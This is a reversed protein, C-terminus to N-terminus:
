TRNAKRTPVAPPDFISQDARAPKSKPTKSKHITTRANIKKTKALKFRNSGAQKSTLVQLVDLKGRLEREEVWRVFGNSYEVQLIPAGSQARRDLVRVPGPRRSPSRYIAASDSKAAVNHSSEACNEPGSPINRTSTGSGGAASSVDTTVDADSGSKRAPPITTTVATPASMVPEPPVPQLGTTGPEIDVGADGVGDDGTTGSTSIAAGDAVAAVAATASGPSAADVFRWCGAETACGKYNRATMRVHVIEGDLDLQVRPWIPYNHPVSLVTGRIWQLPAADDASVKFLYMVRDRARPPRYSRCPRLLVAEDTGQLRLEAHRKDYREILHKCCDLHEEPEWSDEEDGYGKWRVLFERRSDNDIRSNSSSDRERGTTANTVARSELLWEVEYKTSSAAEAEEGTDSSYTSESGSDDDPAKAKVKAKIMVSQRQQQKQQQCNSKSQNRSKSQSQRRPHTYRDSHLTEWAETPICGSSGSPIKKRDGKWAVVIRSNANLLKCHGNYLKGARMM